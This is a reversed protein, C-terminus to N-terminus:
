LPKNSIIGVYSPLITDGLFDGLFLWNKWCRNTLDYLYGGRWRCSKSSSSEEDGVPWLSAWTWFGMTRDIQNKRYLEPILSEVLYWSRCPSTEHPILIRSFWSCSRNKSHEVTQIPSACLLGLFVVCLGEASCLGWFWGDNLIDTPM